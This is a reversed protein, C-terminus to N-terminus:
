SREAQDRKQMEHVKDDKGGKVDLFARWILALAAVELLAVVGTLAFTLLLFTM